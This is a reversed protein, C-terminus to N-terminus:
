NLLVWWFRLSFPCVNSCTIWLFILFLLKHPTGTMACHFRIRSSVMVVCTRDRVESLPNLIQHQGSSHHLDWVCSSNIRRQQPQPTPWGSNVRIQGRAQSGGYAAPADRFLCVCLFCSIFLYDIEIMILSICSIDGVGDVQCVSLILLKVTYKTPLATLFLCECTCRTPFIEM